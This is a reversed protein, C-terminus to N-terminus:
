MCFPPLLTGAICVKHKPIKLKCHPMTHLLTTTSDVPGFVSQRVSDNTSIIPIIPHYM